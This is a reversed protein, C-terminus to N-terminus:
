AGSMLISVLNALADEMDILQLSDFPNGIVVAVSNQLSKNGWASAQDPQDIVEIQKGKKISHKKAM